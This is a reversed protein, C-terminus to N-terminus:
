DSDAVPAAFADAVLADVNDGTLALLFAQLADIEAENLHLPKLMPDLNENNIGGNNYFTLVDRLTSLAGNHMYPATLAINRLSPTKYQWRHQPQQTIEYRGLDNEKTQAVSQLAATDIPIIVGPAIQLTKPLLDKGMSEAYGIGTNHYRQDTFLAHDSQISHCGSCGAKGTFLKFGRIAEASLAPKQKGYYWRDFPSNASNLSRQYSALAMGVTEM